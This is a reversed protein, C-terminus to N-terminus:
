ETMSDVIATFRLMVFINCLSVKFVVKNYRGQLGSGPQPGGYLYEVSHPIDTHPLTRMFYRKDFVM